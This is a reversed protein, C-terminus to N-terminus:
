NNLVIYGNLSTAILLWLFYPLVFVVFLQIQKYGTYMFYTVVLFLLSIDILAIETKHLYFFLPNWLVNLIWQITYAIVIKKRIEGKASGYIKAMFFSFCIMIFTWAIGFIYGPPTWPAKSLSSYWDSSVGSKTFISGIALAGFNLLLFVVVRILYKM